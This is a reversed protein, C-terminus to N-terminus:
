NADILPFPIFMFQAQLKKHEAMSQYLHSIIACIYTM